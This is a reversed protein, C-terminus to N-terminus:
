QLQNEQPSGYTILIARHTFTSAALDSSRLETELVMTFFSLVSEWNQINGSAYAPVCVFPIFIPNKKKMKFYSCGKNLTM